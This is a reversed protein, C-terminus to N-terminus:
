LILCVCLFFLYVYFFCYLFVTFVLVCIVLVDVCTAYINQPVKGFNRFAVTLKTIDTQEDTRGCPVVRSGSSPNEHFKIHSYNKSFRHLFNLNGQFRVLVLVKCSPRHVNTIINREIIRLILFTESLTTSFM